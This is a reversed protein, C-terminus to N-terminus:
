LFLLGSRGSFRGSSLVDDYWFSDLEPGFLLKPFGISILALTLLPERRYIPSIAPQPRPGNSLLQAFSLIESKNEINIRGSPLYRREMICTNKDNSSSDDSENLPM